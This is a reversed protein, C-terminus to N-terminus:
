RHWGAAEADCDLLWTDKAGGGQTSNVVMEGAQGAFRTLAVPLVSSGEEGSLVFARLDVRRSELHDACVTPHVSFDIVPQAVFNAPAMEVQSRVQDLETPSAQPGLVIGQGGFSWRPKIVLEDLQGLARALDEPQGLDLGPVSRLLPQEGLYFHIMKDAYCHVAKDDAIGAGFSNVCGLNGSKLPEGLLEGLPTFRGDESRLSEKSSRNYLVNLAIRRGDVRAFLHADRSELDRPRVVPIQLWRSIERHEFWAKSEEGDSLIAISPDEAGTPDASRFAGALRDIVSALDLEPVWPYIHCTRLAQRCAVAYAIGSPTRLNDEVVLLEGSPHRILDPGAVQATARVRPEAVLPEYYRSEELVRAPMVGQSVLEREGYADELFANMARHRQALGTRLLDWEDPRILRPVPDVPYGAAGDGFSVDAETLARTLRERAVGIGTDRLAEILEGYGRRTSGDPDSAEDCSNTLQGVSPAM